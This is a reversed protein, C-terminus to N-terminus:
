TAPRHRRKQTSTLQRAPSKARAPKATAAPVQNSSLAEGPASSSGSLVADPNHHELQALERKVAACPPLLDGAADAVASVVFREAFTKDAESKDDDDAALASSLRHILEATPQLKDVAVGCRYAHGLLFGGRSAIDNAEGAQAGAAVLSLAAGILASRWVAM